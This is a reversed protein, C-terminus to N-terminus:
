MLSQAVRRAQGQGSYYAGSCLAAYPGAVAEGAFYVKEAIPQALAERADYHGPRSSAYAGLTNPDDAWTSMIGSVFHKRADSGAMDVFRELAYDVAAAEGAKSLEWGFRGGVFGVSYDYGFPWTLFFCAGGSANEPVHHTLWHNPVFGFRSGDFRLGIKCLLGMPLDAISAQTAIPLDPTFRIAGSALVGTSVTVICARATITGNSTEVSVGSGSWDIATARKNLSVPVDAGYRAVVTGLGERVIYSPYGEAAEWYDLVSLDEFDVGHDMPGILTQVTKGFELGDPVIESAAVDRGAEGAAEFSREIAGWAANYAGREESSARRSGVFLAEGAGSHREVGFDFGRAIQLFPNNDANIWSCGHDFPQGFSSSETFARGGIRGSAEIVLVSLGFSELTRAAQLGAVGAGIIVVDPDSPQAMVSQGAVGAAAMGKLVSRRQM